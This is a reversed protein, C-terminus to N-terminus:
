VRRLEDLVAKRMAKRARGIDQTRGRKRAIVEADAARKWAPIQRLVPHRKRWWWLADSIMRSFTM